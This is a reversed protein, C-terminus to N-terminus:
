NVGRVKWWLVGKSGGKKEGVFRCSKFTTYLSYMFSEDKAEIYKDGLLPM